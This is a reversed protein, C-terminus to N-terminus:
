CVVDASAPDSFGKYTLRGKSVELGCEVSVARGIIEDHGLASSMEEANWVVSQTLAGNLPSQLEASAASTRKKVILSRKTQKLM